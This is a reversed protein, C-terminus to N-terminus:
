AAKLRQIRRARKAAKAAAKGKVKPIARVLCEGTKVKRGNRRKITARLHYADGAEILRETHSPTNTNNPRREPHEKFRHQGM